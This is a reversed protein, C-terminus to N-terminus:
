PAQPAVPREEDFAGGGNIARSGSLGDPFQKFGVSGCTLEFARFAGVPGHAGIRLNAWRNQDVLDALTNDKSEGSRGVKGGRALIGDDFCAPKEAVRDPEKM